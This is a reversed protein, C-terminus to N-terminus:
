KTFTTTIMKGVMQASIEMQLTVPNRWGVNVELALVELVMYSIDAIRSEYALKLVSRWPTWGLLGIM